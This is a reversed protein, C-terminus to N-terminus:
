KTRGNLRELGVKFALSLEEIQDAIEGTQADLKKVIDPLMENATQVIVHFNNEVTQTYQELGQNIKLLVGGVKDDLGEFTHEHVKLVERYNNLFEGHRLFANDMSAAAQRLRDAVEAQQRGSKELTSSQGALSSSYIQVQTSAEAMQELADSNLVITNELSQQLQLLTQGAKQFEGSRAEIAAVLTELRRATAESWNGTTEVLRQASAQSQQAVEHVSSMLVTSLAGVRETLDGVVLTLQNRVNNVNQDATEQLRTMLGQMVAALAETQHRGTDMQSNTSEEAKKIISSFAAQMSTFQGNMEVLMLRTSELTGQVNGFEETAAGSLADHFSAGMQGLAQVLSTELSGLLGKLESTVSEQKQAELGVIAAQLQVLTGNMKEMTPRFEDQLRGAMGSSVGEALAPSIDDRFAGVFRDVVESSIHSVSVTQKSAFRQIDLLIRSPSLYPFLGAGASTLADYERRLGRSYAKEALTFVVSCVLAVISSVFKGSLGNILTDIGSVPETGNKPDYRVGYLALLIATFTFLLGIGTIIGPLAGYFNGHYHSGVLQERPLVERIPRTVFWGDKEEPSTYRELSSEIAKWWGDALPSLSPMGQRIVELKRTSLGDALEERSPPDTTGWSERLEKFTNGLALAERRMLFWYYLAAIVLVISGVSILPHLKGLFDIM